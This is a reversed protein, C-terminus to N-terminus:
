PGTRCRGRRANLVCKPVCLARERDDVRERHALFYCFRGPSADIGGVASHEEVLHWIEPRYVIGICGGGGEPYQHGRTDQLGCPM